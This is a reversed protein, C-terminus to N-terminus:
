VALENSIVRDIQKNGSTWRMRERKDCTQQVPQIPFLYQGKRVSNESIAEPYKSLMDKWLTNSDKWVECREWTLYSCAATIIILFTIVMRRKGSDWAKASYMGAIYFLGIYAFYTFRDAAFIQSFRVFQLVPLLSVIFFLIGFLLIQNRRYKWLAILAVIAIFAYVIFQLPLDSPYPYLHSLKIPLFFKEIYFIIGHLSVIGNELISASRKVADVSQQGILGIVSFAAAVLAFPIKEMVIGPDVKRKKLFDYLLLILPFTLVIIKSLIACVFLIFAATLWSQKKVRIYRLYSISSLLFFFMSLVDKRASIWAVSEVRMPHIGFLLGGVLSALVSGTLQYMLFFMLCSNLIHFLVNTAHFVKPDFGGIQYDIMYSIMSLPLYSGNVPTTFVRELSEASIQQVSPNDVVYVDDDWTTWGNFLAPVFSVTTVLLILLISVLIKFTSTAM